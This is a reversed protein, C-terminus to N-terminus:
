NFCVDEFVSKNYTIIAILSTIMWCMFLAIKM